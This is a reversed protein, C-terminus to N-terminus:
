VFKQKFIARLVDLGGTFKAPRDNTAWILMIFFDGTKMSLRKEGLLHLNTRDHKNIIEDLEVFEPKTFIKGWIVFKREKVEDIKEDDKFRLMAFPTGDVQTQYNFESIQYKLPNNAVAEMDNIFDNMDQSSTFTYLKTRFSIGKEKLDAFTPQKKDIPLEM